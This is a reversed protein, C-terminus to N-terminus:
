RKRRVERAVGFGILRDAAYGGAVTAIFAFSYYAGFLVSAQADPMKLSETLYLMFISAMVYYGFREFAETAFLYPLAKPQRRRGSPAQESASSPPLTM